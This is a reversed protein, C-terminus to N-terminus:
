VTILIQVSLIICLLFLIYFKRLHLFLNYFMLIILSIWMNDEWLCSSMNPDGEVKNQIGFYPSTINWSGHIYDAHCSYYFLFYYDMSQGLLKTLFEYLKEFKAKLLGHPKFAQEYFKPLVVLVESWPYVSWYAVPILYISKSLTFIGHIEKTSLSCPLKRSHM